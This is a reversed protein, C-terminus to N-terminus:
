NNWQFTSCTTGGKTDLGPDPEPTEILSPFSGRWVPTMGRKGMEDLDGEEEGLRGCLWGM